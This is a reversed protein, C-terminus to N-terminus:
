AERQDMPPGAGREREPGGEGGTGGYEDVLENFRGEPDAVGEDEMKAVTSPDPKEVQTTTHVIGAGLALTAIAHVVLPVILWWWSGTILALVSGVVLLTLFSILIIPRNASLTAAMGSRGKPARTRAHHDRPVRVEDSGVAARVEETLARNTQDSLGPEEVVVKRREEAM